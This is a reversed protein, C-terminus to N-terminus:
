PTTSNQPAVGNWILGILNQAFTEIEPQSQPRKFTIGDMVFGVCAGFILSTLVEVDCDGLRGLRQEKQLYRALKERSQLAYRKGPSVERMPAGPNDGYVVMFLPIMQQSFRILEVAIHVLNTRPDGTGVLLELEEVWEPIPPVEMAVRFLNEKTGFKYFISGEAIGATQAIEKTTANIGQKLFVTRAATLIRDQTITTPRAM